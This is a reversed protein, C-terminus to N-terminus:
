SHVPSPSPTNRRHPDSFSRRPSSQRQGKGKRESYRISSPSSADRRFSDSFSEGLLYWSHGDDKQDEYRSRSRRIPSSFRTDLGRMRSDYFSERPPDRRYEEGRRREEFPSPSRYKNRYRPSHSERDDGWRRIPSENRDNDDRYSNPSSKYRRGRRPPSHDYDSPYDYYHYDDRDRPPSNYHSDYYDDDRYRPPSEYHPRNSRRPSSEYRDGKSDYQHRDCEGRLPTESSYDDGKYDHRPSNSRDRRNRHSHSRDLYDRTRNVEPKEGQGNDHSAADCHANRYHRSRQPSTNRDEM